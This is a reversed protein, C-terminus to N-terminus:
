IIDYSFQNRLQLKIADRTDESISTPRSNVYGWIQSWSCDPAPTDYKIKEECTMYRRRFHLERSPKLNWENPRMPPYLMQVLFRSDDHYFMLLPFGQYVTFLEDGFWRYRSTATAIEKKTMNLITYRSERLKQALLERVEHTSMEQPTVRKRGIPFVETNIGLLKDRYDGLPQKLSGLRWQYIEDVFKYADDWPLNQNSTVLRMFEEVYESEPLEQVFRLRELSPKLAFLIFAGGSLLYPEGIHEPNVTFLTEGLWRYCAALSRTDHKSILSQGNDGLKDIIYQKLEENDM